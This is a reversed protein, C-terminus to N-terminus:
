SDSIISKELASHIKEFNVLHKQLNKRLIVCVEDNFTFGKTTLVQKGTEDTMEKLHALKNRPQIIENEYNKVLAHQEPNILNVKALDDSINKVVRWKLAAEFYTNTIIKEFDTLPDYSEFDKLRDKITKLVKDKIEIKTAHNEPNEVFRRAIDLMKSDLIATEAMVLGRMNNLDQVKKITTFIIKQVKPLFEEPNRSSCYVGELSKSKLEDRLKSISNQSYFIVETFVDHRRISEILRGGNDGNSLNFDMLILDFYSLDISELDNGNEFRKSNLKFGHDDLYDEIEEIISNYWDESDEFWLIKYDIRM